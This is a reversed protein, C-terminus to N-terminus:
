PTAAPHPFQSGALIADLVPARRLWDRDLAAWESPALDSHVRYGDADRLVRLRTARHPEQSLPQALDISWVGATDVGLAAASAWGREGVTMEGITAGILRLPLRAASASGPGGDQRDGVWLATVALGEAEADAGVAWRASPQPPMFVHFGDSRHEVRIVDEVTPFQSGTVDPRLATTQDPAVLLAGGDVWLSGGVPLDALCTPRAATGRRPSPQRPTTRTGAFPSPTVPARGRGARDRLAAYSETIRRFRELAETDEPNRDPHHVKALSRYAARIQDDTAGPPLGLVTLDNATPLRSM